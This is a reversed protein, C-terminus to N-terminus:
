PATDGRPLPEVTVAYQQRLRQYMGAIIRHREQILWDRQVEARAEELSLPRGPVLDEILVLHLGFGSQIPGQWSGIELGQLGDTFSRGFQAELAGERVQSFRAPLPLPDGIQTDPTAAGATSLLLRAQEADSRVANGRRDFSFYVQQLSYVPEMQYDAIHEELFAQLTADDPQAMSVVDEALLELKQKLRRRIITDDVDLGMKLGERYAIEENIFEDVLSDFEAQTPLRQWTRSFGEIIHNQQGQTVTIEDGSPRDRNIFGYALFLLGGLLVFHLLPESYWRKVGM